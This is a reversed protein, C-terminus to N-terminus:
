LGTAAQEEWWVVGGRLESFGRAITLIGRLFYVPSLSWVCVVKRRERLRILM